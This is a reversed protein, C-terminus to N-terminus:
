TKKTLEALNAESLVYKNGFIGDAMSNIFSGRLNIWLFHAPHEKDATISYRINNPFYVCQGSKLIVDRDDFELNLRGSKLIGITHTPSDKRSISYNVDNIMEGAQRVYLIDNSTQNNEYFIENYIM